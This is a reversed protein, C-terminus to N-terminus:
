SPISPTLSQRPYSVYTYLTLKTPWRSALPMCSTPSTRLTMPSQIQTTPAQLRGSSASELISLLSGRRGLQEYKDKYVKNFVEISHTPIHTKVLEQVLICFLARLAKKGSKKIKTLVPITFLEPHLFNIAQM